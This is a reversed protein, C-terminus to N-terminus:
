SAAQLLCNGFAMADFLLAGREGPHCSLGVILELDLGILVLNRCFFNTSESAWRCSTDCSFSLPETSWRQM